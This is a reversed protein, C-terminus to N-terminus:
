TLLLPVSACKSTRLKAEVGVGGPVGGKGEHNLIPVLRAQMAVIVMILRALACVDNEVHVYMGM